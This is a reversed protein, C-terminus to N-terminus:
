QYLSAAISATPDILSKDSQRIQYETFVLAPCTARVSSIIGLRQASPLTAPRYSPDQVLSLGQPGHAAWPGSLVAQFSTFHKSLGLATAMYVHRQAHLTNGPYNQIIIAGIRKAYNSVGYLLWEQSASLLGAPWSIKKTIFSPSRQRTWLIRDGSGIRLYKLGVWM